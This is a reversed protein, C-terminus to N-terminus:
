MDIGSGLVTVRDRGPIFAVKSSTPPILKVWAMYITAGVVHLYTSNNAFVLNVRTM